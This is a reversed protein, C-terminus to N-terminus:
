QQWKIEGIKNMRRRIPNNETTKNPNDETTKNQIARNLLTTGEPTKLFKTLNNLVKENTYDLGAGLTKALIDKNVIGAKIAQKLAFPSTLALGIAGGIPSGSLITGLAAAGITRSTSTTGNMSKPTLQPNAFSAAAALKEAEGTVNKGTIKGLSELYLRNRGASAGGAAILAAEPKGPVVLNKNINDEIKHLKSLQENAARLEPISHDLIIKAERAAGKAANQVATGPIFFQGNKFAGKAEEYLFNQTAYLKELPLKKKFQDAVSKIKTQIEDIHRIQDKDFIPDLKAKAKDLSELLPKPSVALKPPLDKLAQSIKANQSKRFSQIDNTIQQRITDAAVGVDGGSEKILKEVAANKDIYTKINKETEGTVASGLKIFASKAKAGISPSIKKVGEQILPIGKEIGKALGLSGVGLAAGKATTLASEGLGQGESLAEGAGQLAGFKAAGTIGKTATFPLTLATGAIDGAFTTKPFEKQAVQQEQLSEERGAKYAGPVASIARQLKESLGEGKKDVQLQGILAGLGAGAGAVVPRFGLTGGKEVGIKLAELQSISEKPQDAQQYIEWPPVDKNAEAQQYIEWPKM